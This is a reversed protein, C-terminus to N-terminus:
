TINGDAAVVVVQDVLRIEVLIRRIHMQVVRQTMVQHALHLYQADAVVRDVESAATEHFQRGTEATIVVVQNVLRELGGQAVTHLLTHRAPDAVARPHHVVRQVCM